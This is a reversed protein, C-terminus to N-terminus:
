VGRVGAADLDASGGLSAGWLRALAVEGAAHLGRVAGAWGPAGEHTAAAADCLARWEGRVVDWTPPAERAQELLELLGAAVPRADGGPGLAELAAVLALARERAAADVEPRGARSVVAVALREAGTRRRVCARM